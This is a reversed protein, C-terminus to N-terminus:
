KDFEHKIRFTACLMDLISEFGDLLEVGHYEAGDYVQMKQRFEEDTSMMQVALPALLQRIEKESYGKCNM